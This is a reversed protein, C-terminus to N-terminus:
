CAFIMLYSSKEDLKLNHYGSSVEILSLYKTNNFKPLIDNLTPGRHIPRILAQNLQAPDLWLRVKRNTKPVFVFSNCWESTENIGLPAIIGQKQLRELEEELPKQLTCAMYRLPVQQPKSDPKLQLSFTGDFCWIGNFVDWFHKHLQWTTETSRKKDSDYSLGSLYYEITKSLKSKVTPKTKSNSKSINATNTYCKKARVTEQKPDDRQVTHMNTCFNYNGGTQETDIIHINIKIINLADIDPMGLLAQGNGPVVFISM